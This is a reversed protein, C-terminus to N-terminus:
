TRNRLASRSADRAAGNRGAMEDAAGLRRSSDSRGITRLGSRTGRTRGLRAAFRPRAASATRRRPVRAPAEPGATDAADMDLARAVDEVDEAELAFIRRQLEHEDARGFAPQDGVLDRRARTGTM